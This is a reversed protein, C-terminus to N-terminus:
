VLHSTRQSYPRKHRTNQMAYSENIICLSSKPIWYIIFTFHLIM